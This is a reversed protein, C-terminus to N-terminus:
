SAWLALTTKATLAHKLFELPKLSSSSSFLTTYSRHSHRLYSLQFYSHLVLRVNWMPFNLGLLHSYFWLFLLMLLLCNAVLVWTKMLYSIDAAKQRGEAGKDGQNQEGYIQASVVYLFKLEAQARANLVGPVQSAASTLYQRGQELDEASIWVLGM